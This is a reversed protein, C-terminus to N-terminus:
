SRKRSEAPPHQHEGQESRQQSSREAHEKKVTKNAGMAEAGLQLRLLGWDLVNQLSSWGPIDVPWRSGVM